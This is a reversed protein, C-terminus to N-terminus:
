FQNQHPHINLEIGTVDPMNIDTIVLDIDKGGSNELYKIVYLRGLLLNRMAEGAFYAIQSNNSKEANQMIQTLKNEMKPGIINLRNLVLENRQVRYAKIAEFATNYQEIEQILLAIMQAREPKNIESKAKSLLIEVKNFYQNYENIDKDSGTLLFDKVNMRVMLLNSQVQSIENSATSYSRYQEFGSSATHLAFYSAVGVFGLLVLVVFFGLYLKQSFNLM